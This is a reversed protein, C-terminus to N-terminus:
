GWALAPDTAVERLESASSAFVQAPELSSPSVVTEVVSTVSGDPRFLRSKRQMRLSPLDSTINVNYASASGATLAVLAVVLGLLRWGRGRHHM